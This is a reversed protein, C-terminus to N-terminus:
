AGSPGRSVVGVIRHFPRHSLRLDHSVRGGLFIMAQGITPDNLLKRQSNGLVDQNTRKLPPPIPTTLSQLICLRLSSCPPSTASRARRTFRWSSSPETLQYWYYSHTINAPKDCNFGELIGPIRIRSPRPEISWRVKFASRHATDSAIRGLSTRQVEALAEIRRLVRGSYMRVDTLICDLEASSRDKFMGGVILFM